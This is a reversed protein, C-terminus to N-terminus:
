KPLEPLELKQAKLIKVAEKDAKTPNVKKAWKLLDKLEKETATGSGEVSILEKMQGELAQVLLTQLEAAPKHAFNIFTPAKSKDRTDLLHGVPEEALPSTCVFVGPFGDLADYYQPPEKPIGTPWDLVYWWRCLLRQILLGKTSGTGYLAASPYEYSKSQSSSSPTSTTTRSSSSKKKTTTAKKPKAAPKAKKKKPSAVAKKNPKAKQVLASLPMDDDSSEDDDDEDEAYSVPVASSRRKKLPTTEAGTFEEEESSDSM